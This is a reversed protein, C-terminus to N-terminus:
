VPSWFVTSVSCLSRCRARAAAFYTPEYTLAKLTILSRMVLDRDEGEYTCRSCWETWFAETDKLANSPDIPKPVPLHSAGYTLVFPVTDGEGVEPDARDPDQERREEQEEEQAADHLHHGISEHPPLRRAMLEQSYAAVLDM